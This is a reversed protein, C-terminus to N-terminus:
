SACPIAEGRPVLAWELLLTAEELVIMNSTQTAATQDKGCVNIFGVTQVHIQGWARLDRQTLGNLPGCPKHM